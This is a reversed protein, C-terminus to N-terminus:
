IRDNPNREEGQRGTEADGGGRTRRERRRRRKLIVAAFFIVLLLSMPFFTNLVVSFGGYEKEVWEQWEREFESSSVGLSKQMARDFSGLEGVNEIIELFSERGFQDILFLIVSFSEVYALKARGANEPFRRGISSLPLLSHTVNAWSLWVSEGFKWEGSEYMAMGEDFWRPIEVNGCKSGLVVHAIEHAVLTRLDVPHAALRPSKIAIAKELPMACGIGWDPFGRISDSEDESSIVRIDIMLTETLGIDESIRSLDLEVFRVIELAIREDAHDYSVTFHPTEQCLLFLM